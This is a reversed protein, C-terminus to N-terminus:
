HRHHIFTNASKSRPLGFIQTFPPAQQSVLPHKLHDIRHTVLGFQTLQSTQTIRRLYCIALFRTTELVHADCSWAQAPSTLRIEQLVFFCLVKRYVACIVDDGENRILRFNNDLSFWNVDFNWETYLDSSERFNPYIHARHQHNISRVKYSNRRKTQRTWLQRSCM